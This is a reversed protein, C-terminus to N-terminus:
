LLLDEIGAEVPFEEHPVVQVDMWSFVAFRLHDVADFHDIVELILQVVFRRCQLESFQREFSRAVKASVVSFAIALRRLRQVGQDFVDYIHLLQDLLVEQHRLFRGLLDLLEVLVVWHLPGQPVLQFYYIYVM